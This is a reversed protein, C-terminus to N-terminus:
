RKEAIKAITKRKTKTKISPFRRERASFVKSDSIVEVRVFVRFRQCYDIRFLLGYIGKGSNLRRLSAAHM